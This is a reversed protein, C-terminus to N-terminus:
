HGEQSQTKRELKFCNFAIDFEQTRVKAIMFDSGEEEAEERQEEESGEGEGEGEGRRIGRLAGDGDSLDGDEETLIVDSLCPRTPGRREREGGAEGDQLALVDVEMRLKVSPHVEEQTGLASVEGTRGGTRRENGENAGDFSSAPM